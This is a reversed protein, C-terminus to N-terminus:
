RIVGLVMFLLPLRAFPACISRLIRSRVQLGTDQGRVHSIKSCVINGNPATRLQQATYNDPRKQEGFRLLEVGHNSGTIPADEACTSHNLLKYPFM